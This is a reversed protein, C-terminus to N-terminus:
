RLAAGNPKNSAQWISRRSSRATSEPARCIIGACTRAIRCPGCALVHGSSGPAREADCLDNYVAERRAIEAWDPAFTDGRMYEAETDGSHYEDAFVHYGALLPLVEVADFHAGIEDLLAFIGEPTYERRKGDREVPLRLMKYDDKGIYHCSDVYLRGATKNMGSLIELYVARGKDDHFMTRLRCNGRLEEATDRCGFMGAGEFYLKKM